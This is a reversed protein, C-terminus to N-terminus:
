MEMQDLRLTAGMFLAGGIVSLILLSAPHMSLPVIDSNVFDGPIVLGYATWPTLHRVWIPMAQSFTALLIGIIGVAMPGLQNETRASILLQVGLVGLNVVILSIVLGSLRAVPVPYAVGAATGFVVVFAGWFIPMSPIILGLAIFKARCLQGPGAGAASSSTWSSGSYEIEVQRSALIAILLPGSLEVSSHLSILLLNWAHENSDLRHEALGSNMAGIVTLGVVGLLLLAAIVGVRLHHMKAYENRLMRTGFTLVKLTSM